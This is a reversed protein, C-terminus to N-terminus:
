VMKYLLTKSSLAVSIQILSTAPVGTLTGSRCFANWTKMQQCEKAFSLRGQNNQMELIGNKNAIAELLEFPVAM